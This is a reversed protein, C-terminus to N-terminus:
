KIRQFKYCKSAQVQNIMDTTFIGEEILKECLVPTIAINDLLFNAKKWIVLQQKLDMGNEQDRRPSLRPTNKTGPKSPLELKQTTPKTLSNQNESKNGTRTGAGESSSSDTQNKDSHFGEDETQYGLSQAGDVSHKQKKTKSLYSDPDTSQGSNYPESDTVVHSDGHLQLPHPAAVEVM